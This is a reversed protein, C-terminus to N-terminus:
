ASGRALTDDILQLVEAINLPKTLYASAGSAKLHAIQSRTADASLVAVPIQRTRQNEWLRRLVEEGHMDPLHLDLLILDPAASSALDIGAQGQAVSILRIGPRRSLLREMLRQNSVNDEIYLVTGQVDREVATARPRAAAPAAVPESVHEAVALELWFTTGRDVVSEVGLSGGMAEALAKSLALGLGTGEITTHDAGLREFPQFLLKVKEPPIGAGTDTVKIRLRDNPADECTVLVRGQDRNYKVANSLLNLLIQNLRQRDALVHRHESAPTYELVIGRQRALPRVLDIIQTVADNVPVPEPSLSLHGAEIRAIDLVENILDLLHGGGKLIHRLSERQEDTLADTELLQAFGLIANLPTRLDHSMRSLFESKARNAREAEEKAQRVAAAAQKQETIDRVFANFLRKSGLQIPWVLLEIPFEAGNRRVASMELRRNLIRGEGTRAVEQLGAEHAQRHQPPIILESLTRGVVEDRTWGFIKEAALNWEVVAGMQDIGIFADHATRLILRIREENEAQRQAARKRETIDDSIGLLYQPVGAEDCIPIKRTHLTRLGRTATQLSEEPVDVLTQNDLATRDQAAFSAAQQESFVDHNSKGLMEERSIGVLNEFARNLRVYQLTAADRVFIASPVNEVISNLFREARRVDDEAIKRDTIDQRHCLVAAVDGRPSSEARLTTLFWRYHGDKTRCRHEQEIQPARGSFVDRLALAAVDRDDPHIIDMWFRPVGVAEDERYGLVETINPSTYTVRVDDDLLELRSIISPSAVILPELFARSEQLERQNRALQASRATLEQQVRSLEKNREIAADYTSLLLNLIQLRDATITHRQGNFFIEVALAGQQAERMQRNMLVFQVRGLLYREDYPKLIFNDARCELGRIVDGPDSLTTVLIVPVDAFNPDDKVRRCMEYGDMEPMMVDSIILAPKRTRAAELAERGNTAHAVQFGQRELIHRLRQAQTLSDEAILIEVDGDPRNSINM